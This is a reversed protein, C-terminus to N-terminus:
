LVEKVAAAGRSLLKETNAKLLATAARHIDGVPVAAWRRDDTVPAAGGFISRSLDAIVKSNAFSHPASRSEGGWAAFRRVLELSTKQAKSLEVLKARYELEPQELKPFRKYDAFHQSEHALYSVSFSESATDYSDAVCYLTDDKAWGGSYAKECTAFASWGLVVFDHMFVVRVPLTTEPLAVEYTQSVERGWAMLEYYPQTVGRISHYGRELLHPGLADVLDDLSSYSAPQGNDRLLTTLRKFLYAEGDAASREQLLVGMWYDRYVGILEAVFPDRLDLAPMKKDVFRGLLCDREAREKADLADVRLTRLVQLAQRVDGELAKGYVADLTPPPPPTPAPGRTPRMCATCVLFIACLSRRVPVM